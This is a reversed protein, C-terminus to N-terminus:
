SNLSMHQGQPSLQNEKKHWRKIQVEKRMKQLMLECLNSVIQKGNEIDITIRKFGMPSSNGELLWIQDNEDIRLDLGVYNVSHEKKLHDAIDGFQRLINNDDTIIAKSGVQYIPNATDSPSATDINKEYAFVCKGDLCIARYERAPGIYQQALILEGNDLDEKNSAIAIRLGEENQVIHVNKSLSGNNPKIVVPFTFPHTESEIKAMLEDFIDAKGHNKSFAETHPTNAKWKIKEFLHWKDNIFSISEKSNFPTNSGNFEFHVSDITVELHGKPDLKISENDELRSRLYSYMYSQLPIEELM